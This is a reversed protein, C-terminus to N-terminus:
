LVVIQFNLKLLLIRKKIYKIETYNNQCKQINLISSQNVLYNASETYSYKLIIEVKDYLGRPKEFELVMKSSIPETVTVPAFDLDKFM